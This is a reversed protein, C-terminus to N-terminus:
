KGHGCLPPCLHSPPAGRGLGGAAGGGRDGDAAHHREQSENDADQVQLESLRDAGPLGQNESGAGSSVNEWGETHWLLM